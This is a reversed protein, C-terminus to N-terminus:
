NKEGLKLLADYVVQPYHSKVCNPLKNKVLSTDGVLHLMEGVDSFGFLRPPLHCVIDENTKVVTFGNWFYRLDKSVKVCRPSEFAFTQLDLNPFHYKIDQHCLHCLGGGHSYGVIIVKKYEKSYVKDLVINRVQNYSYLFGRHVKFLGYAKKPFMFNIFWDWKGSSAQFYIYLTENDDVFAYNVDDGVQEYKITCCIRFLQSLKM